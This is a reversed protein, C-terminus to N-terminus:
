DKMHIVVLSCDDARFIQSQHVLALAQDVMEAAGLRQEVLPQLMACFAVIGEDEFVPMRQYTLQAIQPFFSYMVEFSRNNKYRFHRLPNKPGVALAPHDEPLETEFCGDTALFLYDGKLLRLTHPVYPKRLAADGPFYGLPPGKDPDLFFFTDIAHAYYFLPLGACLFNFHSTQTHFQGHIGVAGRSVTRLPNTNELLDRTIPGQMMANFEEFLSPQIDRDRRLQHDMTSLLLTRIHSALFLSDFGHNATDFISIAVDHRLEDGINLLTEYDYGIVFDGGISIQQSVGLRRLLPELDFESGARSFRNDNHTKGAFEYGAKELNFNLPFVEFRKLYTTLFYELFGLEWEALKHVM